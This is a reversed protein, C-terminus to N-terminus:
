QQTAKKKYNKNNGSSSKSMKKEKEKGREHTDGNRDRSLQKEDEIISHYYGEAESLEQGM